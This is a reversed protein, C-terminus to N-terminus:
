GPRSKLLDAFFKKKNLVAHYAAVKDLSATLTIYTVTDLTVGHRHLVEMVRAQDRALLELLTSPNKRVAARGHKRKAM